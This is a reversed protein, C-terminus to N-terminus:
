RLRRVEVTVDTVACERYGTGALTASSCTKTERSPVGDEEIYGAEADGKLTIKRGPKLKTLKRAAAGLIDVALPEPHKLQRGTGDAIEPPCHPYLGSTPATMAVNLRDVLSAVEDGSNQGADVYSLVAGPARIAKRRCDYLPALPADEPKCEGYESLPGCPTCQSTQPITNEEWDGKREVTARYKANTGGLLVFQPRVDGIRPTSFATYRMPRRTSFGITQTGGGKVWAKCPNPADKGRMSWDVVHIGTIEVALKMEGKAAHADAACLITLLAIAAGVLLRNM